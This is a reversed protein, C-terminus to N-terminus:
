YPLGGDLMWNANVLEVEVSIALRVEGYVAAGVLGDVSVGGLVVLVPAALEWPCCQRPSREALVERRFTKKFSIEPDIITKAHPRSLEADGLGSHGAVLQSHAEVPVVHDFAEETAASGAEVQGDNAFAFDRRAIGDLNGVPAVVIHCHGVNHGKVVVIGVDM